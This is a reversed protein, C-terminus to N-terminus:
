RWLRRWHRIRAFPYTPLPIRYSQENAHLARYDVEHGLTWARALSHLVPVADIEQASPPALGEDGRKLLTLDVGDKDGPTSDGFVDETASDAALAAALEAPGRVVAAWRRRMHQRGVTLSFSVDDWRAEPHSELWQRLEARKTALAEPTRASLAAIRPVPRDPAREPRRPAEELVVHSNYGGGGLATVGARRIGCRPDWADLERQPRFPTRPFDIEPNEDKLNITPPLLRHHLSLAAKIVGAGGAVVGTHGINGKVSGLACYQNDRSGFALRAAQVELADSLPLGLANAEMLTVTEPDVEGVALAAAICAALREPQAVGYARAHVGNNNVGTGKVVAYIHDRDRVADSVPKLLVTAVGSSLAAGTGEADFPRSHGDRTMVRGQEWLHGRRHPLRVLVGGAVAIDTQGLLLSQCALHLAYNFGTCVAPVTMAEGQMGLYLLANSSLCDPLWSYSSQMLEEAGSVWDPGASYRAIGQPNCAAYVGVEGLELGPAYGGDEMAEWASQLFMRHEPTMEAAIRDSIGFFEADFEDYGEIPGCVPVYAPNNLLGEDAEIEGRELFVVSERGATINSWFETTNRAGPFRCSVGIIAIDGTDDSAPGDPESM